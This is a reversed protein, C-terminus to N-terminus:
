FFIFLINSKISEINEKTINKFVNAWKDTKSVFIKALEGDVYKDYVAVMNNQKEDANKYNAKELMEIIEKKSYPKSLNNVEYKELYTNGGFVSNSNKGVVVVKREKTEAELNMNELELDYDGSQILRAIETHYQDLITKYFSEQQKIPLIAVRGSTKHALNTFDKTDENILNGLLRNMEPNEELWTKVIEDGYKNLFDDSKLLDESNKQNSTTNADLSKMKKQLMM